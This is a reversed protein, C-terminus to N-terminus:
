RSWTLISSTRDFFALTRYGYFRGMLVLVGGCKEGCRIFEDMHTTCEIIVYLGMLSLFCILFTKFFQRLLYRDIIGM